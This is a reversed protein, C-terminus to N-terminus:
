LDIEKIYVSKTVRNQTRHNKLSGGTKDDTLKMGKSNMKRHQILQIHLLQPFPQPLFLCMNTDM